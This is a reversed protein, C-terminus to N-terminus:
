AGWEVCHSIRIYDVYIQTWPGFWRQITPNGIYISGPNIPSTVSGVRQGDVYLTYLQGRELTVRVVHWNSDGPTGRWVVRGGLMRIDFRYVGGVVHHINLIDEIGPPLGTAALVRGGDFSASNLAITTGYATFDSHRFRAEMAFDSGAGEFLDNRWVLPFSGDSPMTWLQIISDSVKKKGDELSVSWGPLTSDEFEEKFSFGWKVCRLPYHKLSEPLYTWHQGPTPTATPTPTPSGTPTVTPTATRTPTPTNTPTPPILEYRITLYPRTEPGPYESSRVDYEGGVEANTQQILVGKNSAGDRVWNRVASTVDWVYWHDADYIAQDDLATPSRDSVPDNCGPVGWDDSDTAKHWTAKMEDWTRYIPYAACISAALDREGYNHVYMSLTAERITTWSPLGSVDFRVLAGVDGKMGLVLEDEGFNANPVEKSIRTDVCGAYGDVGQQLILTLEGSPPPTPSPPPADTYYSVVLAPRQHTARQQASAFRFSASAPDAFLLVGNNALSGYVWGQVVETLGFEYWKGLGSTTVTSEPVARRDTATHSAGPSGWDNGDQAQTWNAECMEVNRIVYYAGLTIDAGSWTVPYIQLKAETVVANAPIVSVDFRLLGAYRQWYGLQLTEKSCHNEEPPYQAIHTDECGTYGDQGQRLVVTQITGQARSNTRPHDVLLAATLGGLVGLLVVVVRIWPAVTKRM